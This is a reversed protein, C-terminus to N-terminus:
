VLKPTDLQFRIMGNAALDLFDDPVLCTSNKQLLSSFLRSLTKFQEEVTLNILANNYHAQVSTIDKLLPSPHKQLVGLSKSNSSPSLVQDSNLLSSLLVPTLLLSTCTTAQSTIDSENPEAASSVSSAVPTLMTLSPVSTSLLKMFHQEAIAPSAYQKALTTTVKTRCSAGIFFFTFNLFLKYTHIYMRVCTQICVHM